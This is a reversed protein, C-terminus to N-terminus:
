HSPLSLTFLLAPQSGCVRIHRVRRVVAVALDQLIVEKGEAEWGRSRWPSGRSWRGWGCFCRKEAKGNRLRVGPFSPAARFRAKLLAPAGRGSCLTLVTEASGGPARRSVNWAFVGPSLWLLLPNGKWCKQRGGPCAEMRHHWLILRSPSLYGCYKLTRSVGVGTLSRSM